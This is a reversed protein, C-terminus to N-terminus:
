GGDVGDAARQLALITVDDHLSESSQFKRLDDLCHAVLRSPPMDRQTFASKRIGGSGFMQELGTMAESVGDTYLLISEWPGLQVVTTPYGSQGDIGVPLGNSKVTFSDNSRVVIPPCHGANCIEVRGSRHARGAVLTVFHSEPSRQSLHRNVIEVLRSVTVAEDLTRRVLASVHAMLYSAAVGKGSVDGVLFYLWGGQSEHAVLDCYDGSVPGAPLYRYHTQWGAFNLDQQPLLSAQIEWALDLDRQLAAQQERNLECLCYRRTPQELMEPDDMAGDCVICKGFKETGLREIAHDVDALLRVLDNAAGLEDIARQLAIRRTDLQAFLSQNLTQDM